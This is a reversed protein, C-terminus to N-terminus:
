EKAGIIDCWPNRIDKGRLGRIIPVNGKPRPPMPPLGWNRLVTNVAELKAAAPTGDHFFYEQKISDVWERPNAARVPQGPIRELIGMYERNFLVERDDECTWQGYPHLFSWRLAGTLEQGLSGKNGPNYLRGQQESSPEGRSIGAAPQKNKSEDM